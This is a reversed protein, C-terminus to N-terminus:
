EYLKIGDTTIEKGDLTIWIVEVDYDKIFEQGDEISMLFLTTSLADAEKSSNGVVTVSSMYNPSFLTNPDIIHHYKVGNYEYYREYGGSTVLAKNTLKVTGILSSEEFPSQIGIKYTGTNNYYDGVVVNGGANIIYKKYGNDELLNSALETVYGKAIAGLDINTNGKITNNELLRIDDIDYSGSNKLEDLTPIGNGNERYTNWIDIISGMNINLLGSSKKYWSYGYSIVDYLRSDIKIDGSNHNIYYLNKDVLNYKDCLDNYEKYLNDIKNLIDNADKNSYVKVNIYTDMYFMSKAYEKINKDELKFYVKVSLIIFLIIFVIILFTNIYKINKRIFKM